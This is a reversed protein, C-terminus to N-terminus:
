IKDNNWVETTTMKKKIRLYLPKTFFGLVYGLALGVFLAITLQKPGDLVVREGCLENDM